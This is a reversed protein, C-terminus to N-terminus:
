FTIIKDAGAARFEKEEAQTPALEGKKVQLNYRTEVGAKQAVTTAARM